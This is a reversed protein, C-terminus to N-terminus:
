LITTESLSPPDFEKSMETEPFLEQIFQAFRQGKETSSLGELEGRIHQVLSNYSDLFDPFHSNTQDPM